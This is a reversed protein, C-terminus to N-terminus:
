FMIRGCRRYLDQARMRLAEYPQGSIGGAIVGGSRGKRAWLRTSNSATDQCDKHTHAQSRLGEHGSRGEWRHVWRREGGVSIM